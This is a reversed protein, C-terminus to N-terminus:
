KLLEQAEQVTILQDKFFAVIFADSIGLENVLKNKFEAAQKYTSFSGATYRNFGNTTRQSKIEQLSNIKIKIDEPLDNKFVGVQVKFKVMDKNVSINSKIPENINEPSAKTAGADALPVRKGNKYAVIFAGEYGKLLVDIKHKAAQNYDTFSGTLYRTLGDESTIIMLDDLSDFVNKSLKKNYAGLQIRYVFINAPDKQQLSSDTYEAIGSSKVPTGTEKPTISEKKASAEKSDSNEKSASATYNTKGESSVIGSSTISSTGSTKQPLTTTFAPDKEKIYKNNLHLVVEAEEIGANKIEDRRKIADEYSRFSGATYVTVADNVMSSSIDQISLFQNIKEPPIGTTYSGLMVKYKPSQADAVEAEYKTHTIKSFQGTSDIYTLYQSLITSDSLQIGDKDVFMGSPTNPELDLYDPLGDGDSDLPCGEKDIQVGPPTDPCKDIFDTVGDGDSDDNDLMAFDVDKFLAESLGSKSKRTIMFRYNLGVSTFLFMDNKGNGTRNGLSSETVGDIFDTLTYHLTTGVKFDFRDSLFLKVGAGLPISITRETYKGFGDLNAERIDTEYTYDRQLYTARAANPHNQPLNRISGDNWYHYRNGNADFLDTKSLFEVSEIGFYIFPEVKRNQPLLQNFNYSFGVGGARIESEFNLNRTKSRENASLKGFLFHFNLDLSPSLKTSANLQHGIRSILPSKYTNSSIDGHYSLMGISYGITPKLVVERPDKERKFYDEDENFIQSSVPLSFFLFIFLASLSFKM